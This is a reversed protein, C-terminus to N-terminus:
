KKIITFNILGLFSSLWFLWAKFCCIGKCLFGLFCFPFSGDFCISSHFVGEKALGDAMDHVEEVWDSVMRWPYFTNWLGWQIVSFLIVKLFLITVEWGVCSTAAWWFLLFKLKMLM